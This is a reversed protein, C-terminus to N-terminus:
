APIVLPVHGPYVYKLWKFIQDPVIKDPVRNSPLVPGLAVM